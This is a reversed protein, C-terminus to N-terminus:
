FKFNEDFKQFKEIKILNNLVCTKHLRWCLQDRNDLINLPLNRQQTTLWRRKKIISTQPQDLDFSEATTKHLRYINISM